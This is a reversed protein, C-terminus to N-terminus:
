IKFSSTQAAFEESEGEGPHQAEDGDLHTIPGPIAGTRGRAVVIRRREAAISAVEALAIAARFAVAEAPVYGSGSGEQPGAGGSSLAQCREGPM